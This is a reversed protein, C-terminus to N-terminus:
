AQGGEAIRRAEIRAKLLFRDASDLLEDLDGRKALVDGYDTNAWIADLAERAITIQAMIENIKM